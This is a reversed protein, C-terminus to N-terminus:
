INLGELLAQYDIIPGSSKEIEALHQNIKRVYQPIMMRILGLRVKGKSIYTSFIGENLHYIFHSYSKCECTVSTIATKKLMYIIRKSADFLTSSMPGKSQITPDLSYDCIPYGGNLTINAVQVGKVNNSFHFMESGIKERLDSSIMMSGSSISSIEGGEEKTSFTNFINNVENESFNRLPPKFETNSNDLILRVSPLIQKLKMFITGLITKPKTTIAIFYEVKEPQGQGNVPPPSYLHGTAPYGNMNQLPAVLIKAKVGDILIHNLSRTHIEEAVNFIAATLSCVGFIENASLWVGASQIPAGDRQSLVINEVGAIKKIKVLHNKM